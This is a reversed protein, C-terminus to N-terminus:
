VLVRGGGYIQMAYQWISCQPLNEEQWRIESLEFRNSDKYALEETMREVLHQLSTALVGAEYKTPLPNLDRGQSRSDQSLM